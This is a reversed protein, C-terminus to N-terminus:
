QAPQEARVPASEDAAAGADLPKEALLEIVASTLDPAGAEYVVFPVGTNSSGSTDFVGDLNGEKALRATARSIRDLSSRMATVMERNIRKTEEERYEEFEKQLTQAEQRKIEYTRVLKAATESERDSKNAELQAQLAQLEGIIRRLQEARENKMIAVREEQVRALLRTTSPLDRYIDTVRVVAFKPAAVALGCAGVFLLSVLLKM